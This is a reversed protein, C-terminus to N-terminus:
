VVHTSNWLHDRWCRPSFTMVMADRAYERTPALRENVVLARASSACRDDVILSGFSFRVNGLMAPAVVRAVHARLSRLAAPLCVGGTPISSSPRISFSAAGSTVGYTSPCGALLNTLRESTLMVGCTSPCGETALSGGGVVHGANLLVAVFSVTPLWLKTFM